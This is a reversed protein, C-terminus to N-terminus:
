RCDSRLRESSMSLWLTWSQGEQRWLGCWLVHLVADKKCWAQWRNGTITALVTRSLNAKALCSIASGSRSRIFIKYKIRSGRAVMFERKATPLQHVRASSQMLGSRKHVSRRPSRSDNSINVTAYGPLSAKTLYSVNALSGCSVKWSIKRKRLKGNRGDTFSVSCLWVVLLRSSVQLVKRWDVSRTSSHFVLM